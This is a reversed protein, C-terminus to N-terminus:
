VKQAFHSKFHVLALAYNVANNRFMPHSLM